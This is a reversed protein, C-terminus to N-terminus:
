LRMWIKFVLVLFPGEKPDLTGAAVDAMVGAEFEEISGIRSLLWHSVEDRELSRVRNLMMQVGM